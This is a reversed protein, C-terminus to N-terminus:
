HISANAALPRALRRRFLHSIKSRCFARTCALVFTIAHAGASFTDTKAKEKKQTPIYAGPILHGHAPSCVLMALPAERRTSHVLAAQLNSILCLSSHPVTHLLSHFSILETTAQLYDVARPPRPRKKRWGV